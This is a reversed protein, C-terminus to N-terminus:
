KRVFIVILLIVAVMSAIADITTNATSGTKVTIPLRFRCWVQRKWFCPIPWLLPVGSDACFDELIHFLYGAGFCLGLLRLQAYKATFIYVLVLIPFIFKVFGPIHILRGLKSIIMSSGIFTAMFLLIILLLLVANTQIFHAFQKTEIVNQLNTFITYNGNPLRFWFLFILGVAIIPTHWLYRHQSMPKKDGKGHYVNWIIASTSQMFTTFISGLAGLASGASSSFNDLDPFLAGGVLVVIGVIFLLINDKMQWFTQKFLDLPVLMCIELLIISLVAHTRGMFGSLRRVKIGGENKGYAYKLTPLSKRRGVM